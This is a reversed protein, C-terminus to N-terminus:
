SFLWHQVLFLLAGSIYGACALGSIKKVYWIFGIKELGMAAVGAASGIVLISGGTGACYALFVWLFSDAPHDALSYMGMASAVIPVNDIVASVLGILLIILSQQGILQDLRAALASLIHAHELTAVVLLIGIFFVISSLDIRTLAHAITMQQKLLAPKGRHVIDGVLWLLGLGFLMGMYPPLNTVSKFLPVAGLIGLGLWFMLLREFASSGTNSDIQQRAPVEIAKGRLMIHVGVMPVLVNALAPLFLGSMLPVPTVQGGIWLMSSTVDGIVSWAGGANAAIIIIGAFLLRDEAQAHLKQMLSVMVIATTINDLIPSLCFTVAAIIWALSTLQRAKIRTTIVEFGDHADIVEVITMAGILFFVIQATAVTSHSLQELILPADATGLAYITWLVGAGILASASKDIKLPQELAIALYVLIFIVILAVIM